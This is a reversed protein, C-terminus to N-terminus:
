VLVGPDVGLLVTALCHIEVTYTQGSGGGDTDASGCDSDSDNPYDSGLEHIPFADM